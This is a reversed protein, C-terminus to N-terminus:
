RWRLSTGNAQQLRMESALNAVHGIIGHHRSCRGVAKAREPRQRQGSRIGRRDKASVTVMASAECKECRQGRRSLFSPAAILQEEEEPRVGVLGPGPM